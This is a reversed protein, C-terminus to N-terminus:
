GCLKISNKLYFVSLASKQKFSRDCGEVDCHYPKEGTHTRIHQDLAQQASFGQHCHPCTFPKYCTHTSIHRRLKNRSAFDQDGRRSCGQWLCVYKTKSSMSTIHDDCLHKQLDVPSNFALGCTKDHTDTEGRECIWRCIHESPSNSVQSVDGPSIPHAQMDPIRSVEPHPELSSSLTRDHHVPDGGAGFVACGFQSFAGLTIAADHETNTHNCPQNHAQTMIEPSMQASWSQQLNWMQEPSQPIDKPCQLDDCIRGQASCSEDQCPQTSCCQSSCSFRSCDISTCDDPVARQPTTGLDSASFSNGLQFPYIPITHNTDYRPSMEQFMNPINHHVQPSPHFISSDPVEYTLPLPMAFRPRLGLPPAFGVRQSNLPNYAGMCKDVCTDDHSTHFLDLSAPAITDFSSGYPFGTDLDLSGLVSPNAFRDVATSLPGLTAMRYSGDDELPTEIM